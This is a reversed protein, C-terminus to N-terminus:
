CRMTGDTKEVVYGSFTNKVESICVPSSKGLSFARGGNIVLSHETNFAKTVFVSLDVKLANITKCLECGRWRIFVIIIESFLDLPTKNGSCHSFVRLTM